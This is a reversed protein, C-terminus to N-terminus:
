RAVPPVVPSRNHAIEAFRFSPNRRFTIKVIASPPTSPPATEPTETYAASMEETRAPGCAEVLRGSNQNEILSRVTRSACWPMPPLSVALRPDASPASLSPSADPNLKRTCSYWTPNSYAHHMPMLAGSGKSRSSSAGYGPGVAVMRAWRGRICIVAAAPETQARSSGSRRPLAARAVTGPVRSCRWLQSIKLPVTSSVILAGVPNVHPPPRPGTM